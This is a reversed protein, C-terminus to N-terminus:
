RNCFILVIQDNVMKFCFFMFHIHDLSPHSENESQKTIKLHISQRQTQYLYRVFHFRNMYIKEMTASIIHIKVSTTLGKVVDYEDQSRWAALHGGLGVCTSEAAGFTKVDTFLKFCSDQYQTYDANCSDTHLSICSNFIRSLPLFAYNTM